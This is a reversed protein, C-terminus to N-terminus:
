HDTSETHDSNSEYDSYNVDEDFSRGSEVESEESGWAEPESVTDFVSAMAPRSRITTYTTHTTSTSYEM